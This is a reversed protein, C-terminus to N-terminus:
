NELLRRYLSRAYLYLRMDLGGEPSYKYTVLGSTDGRSFTVPATDGGATLPIGYIRGIEDRLARVQADTLGNWEYLLCSLKNDIFIRDEVPYKCTRLIVIRGKLSDDLALLHTLIRNKYEPHDRLAFLTNTASSPLKARNEELTSNWPLRRPLTDAKMPITLVMWAIPVLILLVPLPHFEVRM